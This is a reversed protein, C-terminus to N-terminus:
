EGREQRGEALRRGAWGIQRAIGRLLAVERESLAARALLRRLEAKIPDPNDPNLYGIALLADGLEGLARELPGAATAEANEGREARTDAARWGDAGLEASPAESGRGSVHLEYAVVLVAQALNLSPHAAAAPIRVVEHCLGLERNTLGSAEPGFVVGLRGRRARGRAREALQRPTWAADGGRGSAAVVFTCDAVAPELSDFVRAADLVDWAGYAPARADFDRVEAPPSVLVLRRLGMNKMARAAAAVNVARAARVLM